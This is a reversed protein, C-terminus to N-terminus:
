ISNRVKCRHSLSLVQVKVFSNYYQNQMKKDMNIKGNEVSFNLNKSDLKTKEVQLKLTAHETIAGTSYDCVKLIPSKIESQM